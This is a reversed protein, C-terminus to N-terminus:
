RAGSLCFASRLPSGSLPRCSCTRQRLPASPRSRLPRRWLCRRRGTDGPITIRSRNRVTRANHHVPRAGPLDQPGHATASAPNVASRAAKRFIIPHVPRNLPDFRGTPLRKARAPRSWRQPASKGTLRPCRPLPPWGPGGPRFAWGVGGGAKGSRRSCIRPGAGTPSSRWMRCRRRRARGRICCHQCESDDLSRGKARSNLFVSKLAM